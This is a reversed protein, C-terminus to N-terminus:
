ATLELWEERVWVDYTDGPKDPDQLAVLYHWGDADCRRDIVFGENVLKCDGATRVRAMEDFNPARFVAL